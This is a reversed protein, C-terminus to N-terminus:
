TETGMLVVDGQGAGILSVDGVTAALRASFFWQVGGEIELAVADAKALTVEFAFVFYFHQFDDLM